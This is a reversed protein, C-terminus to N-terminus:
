KIEKKIRIVKTPNVTEILGDAKLVEILRSRETEKALRTKAEFYDSTVEKLDEQTANVEKTLQKGYYGKGVVLLLLLMIFFIFNLNAVVLEKTFFDGNLIQVFANPKREKAAKKKAAMKKVKKKETAEQEDLQVRDLFENDM